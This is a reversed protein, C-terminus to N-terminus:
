PATLLELLITLAVGLVLLANKKISLGKVYFLVGTTWAIVPTKKQKTTINGFIGPLM